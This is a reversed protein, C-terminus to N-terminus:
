DVYITIRTGNLNSPASPRAKIDLRLEPSPLSELGNADVATAAFFRPGSVGTVDFEALKPGDGPVEIVSQYLGSTDGVYVKYKAISGAPNNDDSWTLRIADQDAASPPRVAGLTALSILVFAILKKIM